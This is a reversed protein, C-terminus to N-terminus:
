RGIVGSRKKEQDFKILNVECLEPDAYKYLIQTSGIVCANRNDSNNSEGRSVFTWLLGLEINIASSSLLYILICYQTNSYKKNFDLAIQYWYM